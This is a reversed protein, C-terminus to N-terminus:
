KLYNFYRSTIKSKRKREKGWKCVFPRRGSRSRKYDHIGRTGGEMWEADESCWGMVTRKDGVRASDRAASWSAMCVDPTRKVGGHSAVEFLMLIVADVSMRCVDKKGCRSVAYWTMNWKREVRIEKSFSINRIERLSVPQIGFSLNLGTRLIVLKSQTSALMELLWFM